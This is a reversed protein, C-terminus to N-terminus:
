FGYRVGLELSTDDGVRTRVNEIKAKGINLYRVAAVLALHPDIKYGASGFLQYTFATDHDNVWYYGVWLRTIGM